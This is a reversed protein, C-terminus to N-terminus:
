LAIHYRCSRRQKARWSSQLRPPHGPPAAPASRYGQRPLVKGSQLRERPRGIHTDGQQGTPIFSFALSRIRASSASPDQMEDDAGMSQHLGVDHERIQSQGHDVFLMTKADLLPNREGLFTM